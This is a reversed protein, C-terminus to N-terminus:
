LNKPTPTFTFDPCDNSNFRDDSKPLQGCYFAFSQYGQWPILEYSDTMRGFIRKMRDDLPLEFPIGFFTMGDLKQSKGFFGGDGGAVFGLEPYVVGIWFARGGDNPDDPLPTAKTSVLVYSPEGYAAIVEGLTLSYLAFDIQQVTYPPEEQFTLSGNVEKKDVILLFRLRRPESSTIKTIFPHQNLVELAEELTTEQPIIGEWCPPPCSDGQFWRKKYDELTIAQPTKDSVITANPIPLTPTTRLSQQITARLEAQSILTPVSDSSSDSIITCSALGLCATLCVSWHFFLRQITSLRQM